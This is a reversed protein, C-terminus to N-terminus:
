KTEKTVTGKLFDRREPCTTDNGGDVFPGAGRWDMGWSCNTIRNGKATGSGQFLVGSCDRGAGDIINSLVGWRDAYPYLCIGYASSGTIICGDIVGGVGDVYIGHDLKPDTGCRSVICDYIRMSYVGHGSIGQGAALSVGCGRLMTLPSYTKIGDRGGVVNVGEVCILPARVEIGHRGPEGVVLVSGPVRPRYTVRPVTLYQPSYRGPELVVTSGATAPPFTLM